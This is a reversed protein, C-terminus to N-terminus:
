YNTKDHSGTYKQHQGGPKPTYCSTTKICGRQICNTVWNTPIHNDILYEKKCPTLINNKGETHEIYFKDNDDENIIFLGLISGFHNFLEKIFEYEVIEETPYDVYEHPIINGKTNYRFSSPYYNNSKMKPSSIFKDDNKEQVVIENNNIEYHKHLLCFGYKNEVGHKYFISKIYDLDINSKKYKDYADEISPLNNYIETM